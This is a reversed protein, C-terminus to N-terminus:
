SSSLSNKSITPSNVNKPIELDFTDNLIDSLLDEDPEMIPSMKPTQKM